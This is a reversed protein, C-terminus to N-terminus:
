KTFKLYIKELKDTIEDVELSIDVLEDIEKEHTKRIEEQNEMKEFKNKYGSLHLIDHSIDSALAQTLNLLKKVQEPKNEM